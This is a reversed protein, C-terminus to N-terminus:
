RPRDMEGAIGVRERDVCTHSAVNMAPTQASSVKLSNVVDMPPANKPPTIADTPTIARWFHSLMLVFSLFRQGGFLDLM